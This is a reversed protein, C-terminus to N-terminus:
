KAGPSNIKDLRGNTWNMLKQAGASSRLEPDVGPAHIMDHAKDRVNEKARAYDGLGNGIDGSAESISKGMQKGHEVAKQGLSKAGQMLGSLANPEPAVKPIMTTKGSPSRNVTVPQQKGGKLQVNTEHERAAPPKLSTRKNGETGLNLSSRVADQTRENADIHGSLTAGTARRMVADTLKNPLLPNRRNQMNLSQFKHQMEESNDVFKQGQEKVLKNRRDEVPMKNLDAQIQGADLGSADVAIKQLEDAFGRAMIRGAADEEEATKELETAQQELQEKITPDVSALKEYVETLTQM